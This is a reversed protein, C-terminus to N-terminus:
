NEKELKFLVPLHDSFGGNYKFGIYTRKPKLGGYKEDKEFLFSQKLISANEIKVFLGSGQKLLSGSVIIQDFVFWQLQYKLTGLGTGPWDASLNYLGTPEIQDSVNVAGLHNKISEDSPQDNFDGLVIIKPSSYKSKLENVKQKLLQAAEIRLPKTELLGSYRSPWHNIFFHLTDQENFIGKVYLIERTKVVLGSKSLLPHHQYELPYFYKDNYLFAVDTGRHDPSEKHIIKYPYAKLPTNKILRELVASNEIECLAIIEPPTWGSSSLIVKSLNLLKNNLRKYTWHRDGEPTFEDDETQPDDDLDFLNEVNYFLISFQNSNNQPLSKFSLFLFLFVFYLSKSLTKTKM